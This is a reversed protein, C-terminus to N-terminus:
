LPVPVEQVIPYELRETHCMSAYVIQLNHNRVAGLTVCPNGATKLISGIEAWGTGEPCAGNDGGDTVQRLPVGSEISLFEEFRGAQFRHPFWCWEAISLCRVGAESPPYAGHVPMPQNGM